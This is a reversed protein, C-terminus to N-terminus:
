MIEKIKMQWENIFKYKTDVNCFQLAVKSAGQM